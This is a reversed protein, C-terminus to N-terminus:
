GQLMEKLRKNEERLRLLECRFRGNVQLASERQILMRAYKALTSKSNGDWLGQWFEQLPSDAEAFVQKCYEAIDAPPSGSLTWVLFHKGFRGRPSLIAEVGRQKLLLVGLAYNSSNDRAEPPFLRSRKGELILELQEALSLDSQIWPM